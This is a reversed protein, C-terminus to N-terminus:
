GLLEGHGGNRQRRDVLPKARWEERTKERAEVSRRGQPHRIQRIGELAIEAEDVPM